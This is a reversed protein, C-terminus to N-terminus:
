QLFFFFFFYYSCLDHAQLLKKLGERDAASPPGLKSITNDLRNASCLALAEYKLLEV